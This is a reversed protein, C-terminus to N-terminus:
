ASAGTGFKERVMQLLADLLDDELQEPLTTSGASAAIVPQFVANRIHLTGTLADVSGNEDRLRITRNEVTYYKYSGTGEGPQEYYIEDPNPIRLVPRADTAYILTARPLSEVLMDAFSAGNIQYVNNIDPTVDYNKCLYQRAPEAGLVAQEAMEQCASPLFSEIQYLYLGALEESPRPSIRNFCREVIQAISSAM